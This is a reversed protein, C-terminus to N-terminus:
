IIKVTTKAEIVCISSDGAVRSVALEYIDPRELAAEPEVGLGVELKLTPSISELKRLPM